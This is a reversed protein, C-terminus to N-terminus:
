FNKKNMYILDKLKHALKDEIQLKSYLYVNEKCSAKPHFRSNYELLTHSTRANQINKYGFKAISLLRTLNNQEYNVLTQLYVQIISNQRKTQGNTQLIFATFFRRKICLFYYLLLCFKSTFVLKRNSVILNFLSHYQVLIIIIVKDFKPANITVEVPEYYIM